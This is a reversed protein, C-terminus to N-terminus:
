RVVTVPKQCIQVLRDAVSGLLMRQIAGRGRHGIVVVDVDKAKALSALEEAPHGTSVIKDVTIGPKAVTAALDDLARQCRDKEELEIGRMRSNLEPAGLAGPVYVVSALLLNGQALQALRAAFDVADRSEKSGDFGVLIRKM